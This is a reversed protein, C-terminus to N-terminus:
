SGVEELRSVVIRKEGYDSVSYDLIGWIRIVTGTDRYAILEEELKPVLSSIGYQGGPSQADFYDDYQSGPPLARVIGTWAEVLESAPVPTHIEQPLTPVPEVEMREVVIQTEGYDPVQRQLTGWIRIIREGDRLAVLREELDPEAAAIGFQGDEEGRIRFFDDFQAGAPLSHLTGRWGQVIEPTSTPTSTSTPEVATAPAQTHTAIPTNTPTATPTRVQTATLTNTPAATSTETPPPETNTLSPGITPLPIWTAPPEETAILAQCGCLALVLIWAGLCFQSPVLRLTRKTARM